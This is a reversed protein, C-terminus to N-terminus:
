KEIFPLYRQRASSRLRLACSAVYTAGLDAVTRVLRELQEPADTIGPLVPMVNIGTDLGAARLRGLARLRAEPTPARPEIRRALDRDLTVLSIHISLDSHRDIRR